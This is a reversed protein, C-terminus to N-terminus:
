QNVASGGHTLNPRRDIPTKEIRDVVLIEVPVKRGELRLGLTEQLATFISPRTDPSKADGGDGAGSRADERSWELKIDYAGEIGTMDAVPGQLQNAVMNALSKMSMGYGDLMGDNTTMSTGDKKESPKLKAGKKAVLLAYGPLMKTEFHAALKFREALLNQMMLRRALQRQEPSIQTSEEPPFKANIDFRVSGLWDPGSFSYERVNYANQIINKLTANTMTLEGKNSNSRSSRDGSTNPLISAVEFTPSPPTSQGFSVSVALLTCAFTVLTRRM